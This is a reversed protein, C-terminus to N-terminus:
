VRLDGTIQYKHAIQLMPLLDNAVSTCKDTYLYQMFQQVVEVTFDSIFIEKSFCDSMQTAFMSRFVESRACLITKHVSVRIADVIISRGSTSEKLLLGGIDRQLYFQSEKSYAKNKVHVTVSATFAEDLATVNVM